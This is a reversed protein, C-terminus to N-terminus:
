YPRFPDHRRSRGERFRARLGKEGKNLMKVEFEAAGATGAFAVAAGIALMAIFKNMNKEKRRGPMIRGNVSMYATVPPAQKRRLLCRICLSALRWKSLVSPRKGGSAM